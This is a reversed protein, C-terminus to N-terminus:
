EGRILKHYVGLYKERIVPSSSYLEKIKDETGEIGWVLFGEKLHTVMIEETIFDALSDINGWDM